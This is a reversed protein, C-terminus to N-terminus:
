PQQAPRLVADDGPASPQEDDTRVPVDQLQQARAPQQVAEIRQRGHRLGHLPARPLGRPSRRGPGPEPAAPLLEARAGILGFPQGNRDALTRALWLVSVGAAGLQGTHRLDVLVGTGDPRIAEHLLRGVPAEASPGLPARVEIVLCGGVRRVVVPAPTRRRLRLVPSWAM